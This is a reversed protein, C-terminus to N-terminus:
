RSLGLTLLRRWRRRRADARAEEAKRREAREHLKALYQLGEQLREGSQAHWEEITRPFPKETM